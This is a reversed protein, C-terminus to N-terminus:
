TALHKRGVIWPMAAFVILMVAYVAGAIPDREAFYESMKLGRLGLVVSFEVLLLVVLALGGSAILGLHSSAPFRRVVFRAAYIMAILMLPTELLEAYREGVLPVLWFVRVAGLVFGVSFVIGFYSIGRFLIEAM